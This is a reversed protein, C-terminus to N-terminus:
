PVFNYVIVGSVKVLQGSLKTPKFKSERAAKEAAQRLLPHGSITAASIVNGQEDITVQVNVAGSAKVARAAAPYAPQVLNVANGNVVGGGGIIPKPTTPATYFTETPISDGVRTEIATETPPMNFTQKESGKQLFILEDVSGDDDLGDCNITIQKITRKYGTKTVSVTYKGERLRAFRPMGELLVARTLKKTATNTVVATAGSVPFDPADSDIPRYKIVNLDLPCSKMQAKASPLSVFAFFAAFIILFKLNM